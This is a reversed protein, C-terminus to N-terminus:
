SNDPYLTLSVAGKFLWINGNDQVSFSNANLLGLTSQAKIPSDGTATGHQMDIQIADTYSEYGADHFLTVDGDLYLVQSRLKFTAQKSTVRMWSGNNMTLDAEVTQLLITDDDQQLAHKALVTYPQMHEDVGQFVPNQMIPQRVVEQEPVGELAFKIALQKDDLMPLLLLLLLVLAAILLLLRKSWKVRATRIKHISIISASSPQM